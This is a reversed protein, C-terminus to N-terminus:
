DGSAEESAEGWKALGTLVVGSLLALALALVAGFPYDQGPGFQAALFNGLFTEKGGGLVDAVVYTGLCPVFTLSAAAVLGPRMSPLIAHRFLRLRSASLDRAADVLRPDIREAALSLPLVSLPLHASVLGLLVGARSPYLGLPDLLLSWATTRIVLNTCAPVFLFGLVLRRASKSKERLFLALPLAIGLCAITTAVSYVLTRGFVTVNAWSFGLAGYGVFREVNELTLSFDLAGYAGRPTFALAVLALSPLGLFSLVLLTAPAALLGSASSTRPPQETM